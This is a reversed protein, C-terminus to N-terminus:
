EIDQVFEGTGQGNCVARSLLVRSIKFMESDRVFNKGWTRNERM